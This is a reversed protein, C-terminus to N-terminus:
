SLDEYRGRFFMIVLAAQTSFTQGMRAACCRGSGTVGEANSEATWLIILGVPSKVQM